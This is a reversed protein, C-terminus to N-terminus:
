SQQYQLKTEETRGYEKAFRKRILKADFPWIGTNKFGAAIIDPTFALKEAKAIADQTVTDLPEGRLQRRIIEENKEEHGKM